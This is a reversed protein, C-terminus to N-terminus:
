GVWDDIILAAPDIIGVRDLVLGFRSDYAGHYLPHLVHLTGAIVEVNGAKIWQLLARRPVTVAYRQLARMLSRSPGKSRLREVLALSEGYPVVMAASWDDEILRFREAVAEFDLQARLAQIEHKDRDSLGYLQRFYRRYLEPDFLDAGERILGEAVGKAKRAIGAPPETPALFVRLEGLGELRGERNCRGAAQAMADIGGLARYVVRFDLDVGAEILQTAVLRVSEGTRKAARIESLVESRHAACM